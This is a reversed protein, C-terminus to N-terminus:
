IQPYFKPSNESTFFNKSFFEENKLFFDGLFVKVSYEDSVCSIFLKASNLASLSKQLEYTQGRGPKSVFIKYRFEKLKDAIKKVLDPFDNGHSIYIDINDESPINNNKTLIDFVNPPMRIDELTLEKFTYSYGMYTCWKGDSETKTHHGNYYKRGDSKTVVEDIVGQHWRLGASRNQGTGAINEQGKYKGQVFLVNTGVAITDPDPSVDKALDKYHVHRGTPDNDDWNIEYVLKETDFAVITATFYQYKTSAWMAVVHDGVIPRGSRVPQNLKKHHHSAGNEKISDCIKKIINEANKSIEPLDELIQYNIEFETNLITLFEDVYQNRTLSIAMALALSDM